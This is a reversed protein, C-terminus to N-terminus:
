MQRIWALSWALLMTTQKGRKFAGSPDSQGCSDADKGIKHGGTHRPAHSIGSWFTMRANRRQFATGEERTGQAQSRVRAAVKAESSRFWFGEPRMELTVCINNQALPGKDIQLGGLVYWLYSYLGRTQFRRPAAELSALDPHQLSANSHHTTNM